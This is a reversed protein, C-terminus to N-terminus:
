RSVVTSSYYYYITINLLLLLLVLVNEKLTNFLCKEEIFIIFLIAM